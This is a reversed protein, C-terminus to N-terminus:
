GSDDNAEERHYIIDRQAQRIQYWLLGHESDLHMGLVNWVRRTGCEPCEVMERSSPMHPWAEKCRKHAWSVEKSGRWHTPLTRPTVKAIEDGVEIGLECLACTGHRTAKM